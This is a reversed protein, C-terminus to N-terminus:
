TDGKDNGKALKLCFQVSRLLYQGSNHLQRNDDCYCSRGGVRKWRCSNRWDSDARVANADSRADCFVTFVAGGRLPAAKGNECRCVGCLADANQLFVGSFRVSPDFRQRAHGPFAFLQPGRDRQLVQRGDHVVNRFGHRCSGHRGEWVGQTGRWASTRGTARKRRSVRYPVDSRVEYQQAVFRQVPYTQGQQRQKNDNLNGGGGKKGIKYRLVGVRTHM